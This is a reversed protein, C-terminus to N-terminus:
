PAAVAPAAARAAPLDDVLLDEERLRIPGQLEPYRGEYQAYFERVRDMDAALDGSPKFVLGIGTVGRTYDLYSCIIHVGAERAIHYFGSKWYPAYSRTGEVPVVLYLGSSADFLDAARRVMSNAGSRDIPIGGLWKFLGGFPWRFIQKKGMWAVKLGLAWAVGLMHPMDWNSTHPAAVFVCKAIEPATGEVKWGFAKVWARGVFHAVAGCRPASEISM